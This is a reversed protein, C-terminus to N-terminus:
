GSSPTRFTCREQRWILDAWRLGTAEGIRMGTTVLLIWLAYLPDDRTSDLFQEVENPTLPRM